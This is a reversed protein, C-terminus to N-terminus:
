AGAPWGNVDTMAGRRCLCEVALAVAAGRHGYWPWSSPRCWPPVTSWWWQRSQDIKKVVSLRYQRKGYGPHGVVSKTANPWNLLPASLSAELLLLLLLMLAVAAVALPPGCKKKALRWWHRVSVLSRCCCSFSSSLRFWPRFVSKTVGDRTPLFAAAGPTRTSVTGVVVRVVLAWRDVTSSRSSNVPAKSSGCEVPVMWRKGALVDLELGRRRRWRDDWSPQRAGNKAPRHGQGFASTPSSLRGPYPNFPPVFVGGSSAPMIPCISVGYFLVGALVRTRGPVHCCRISSGDSSSASSIGTSSIAQEWCENTTWSSPGGLSCYVTGDIHVSSRATNFEQVIVVL